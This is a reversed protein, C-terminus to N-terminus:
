KQWRSAPGSVVSGGGASLIASTVHPLAWMKRDTAEALTEISTDNLSYFDGGPAVFASLLHLGDYEDIGALHTEYTHWLAISSTRDDASGTVPRMALLPGAIEDALFGNFTFGADFLGGRISEIQKPPPTLSRPPVAVTVRGETAEAVDEAWPTLVDGCFFHQAPWLCNVLLAEADAPGVLM